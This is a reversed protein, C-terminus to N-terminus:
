GRANRDGQSDKKSGRNSKVSKFVIGRKTHSADKGDINIGKSKAKRRAANSEVRKKKASSKASHKKDYARKNLIADDSMNRKDYSPHKGALKNRKSKDM